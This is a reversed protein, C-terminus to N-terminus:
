CIYVKKKNTLSMGSIENKQLKDVNQSKSSKLHIKENFSM